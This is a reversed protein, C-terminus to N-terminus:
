HWHRDQYERRSTDLLYPDEKGKSLEEQYEQEEIEQDVIEAQPSRELDVWSWLLTPLLLHFRSLLDPALFEIEGWTEWFAIWAQTDLQQRYEQEHEVGYPHDEHTPLPVVHNGSDLTYLVRLLTAQLQDQSLRLTYGAKQLLPLLGESCLWTVAESRRLQCIGSQTTYIPVRCWLTWHRNM